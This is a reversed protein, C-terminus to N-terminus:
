NVKLIHGMTVRFKFYFLIIYTIELTKITNTQSAKSFPIVVLCGSYTDVATCMHQCGKDRILPGIYYIKWKQGPKKDLALQGEVLQTFNRHKIHQCIPCQSIVSKILDM